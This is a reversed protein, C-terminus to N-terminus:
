PAAGPVKNSQQEPEGGIFYTCSEGRECALLLVVNILTQVDKKLGWIFSETSPCLMIAAALWLAVKGSASPAILHWGKRLLPPIEMYM